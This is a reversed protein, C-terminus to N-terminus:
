SVPKPQHAIIAHEVAEDDPHDGKIAILYSNGNHSRFTSVNFNHRFNLPEPAALELQNQTFEIKSLYSYVSEDDIQDHFRKEGRWGEGFLMMDPM